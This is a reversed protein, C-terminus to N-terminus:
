LKINHARIKNSTLSSKKLMYIKYAVRLFVWLTLIGEFPNKEEYRRFMQAYKKANKIRHYTHKWFSLPDELETQHKSWIDM